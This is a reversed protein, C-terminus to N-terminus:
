TDVDVGAERKEKAEPEKVISSLLSSVFFKNHAADEVFYWTQKGNKGPQIRLLRFSDGKSAVGVKDFQHGPGKRLPVHNGSISVQRSVQKEPIEQLVSLDLDEAAKESDERAPKEREKGAQIEITPQKETKAPKREPFKLSELYDEKETLRELASKKKPGCGPSVALLLTLILAIPRMM